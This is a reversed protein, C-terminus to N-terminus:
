RSARQWVFDYSCSHSLQRVRAIGSAYVTGSVSLDIPQNARPFNGLSGLLNQTSQAWAPAALVMGLIAGGIWTGIRM